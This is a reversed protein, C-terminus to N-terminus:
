AAKSAHGLYSVRLDPTLVFEAKRGFDAYSFRGKKLQRMLRFLAPPPLGPAMGTLGHCSLGHRALAGRLEDPTVFHHWDHLSPPMWATVAWDQSLKIMVLKSLRTRNITDFLYLGGPKLVRATERIVADLDRVHELVDVCYVLDAFADALPLEEGCGVQYDIALGAGDAHARATAISAPSPDVGVVAAGLRAMEEALLGGGCGVDVATLGAPDIGRDAFVGTFYRIRAPNLSTRIAHLPQQEDWWIDGPQNYIENDVAM